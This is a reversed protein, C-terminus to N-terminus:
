PKNGSSKEQKHCDGSYACGGCGCSCGGNKHNRLMARIALTVALVIILVLILDVAKM